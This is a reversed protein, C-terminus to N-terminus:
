TQLSELLTKQASPLHGTRDPTVAILATSYRANMTSIETLIEEKTHLATATQDKTPDYAWVNDNRITTYHEAFETNNIAPIAKTSEYECIDGHSRPAHIQENTIVLCDPQLSKILDFRGKFPINAYDIHWAWDDFWMADIKGYNTLLETIRQDIMAMYSVADTTEDTGTILEHYTDRISYELMIKLGAARTKNCFALLLDVQGTNAYWTTEAISRPVQATEHFATSWNCFGDEAVVPIGVYKAGATVATNIWEDLWSDIDTDTPNFLDKDKTADPFSAYSYFTILSIVFSLGFGDNLFSQRLAQREAFKNNIAGFYVSGRQGAAVITEGFESNIESIGDTLVFATYGLTGQLEAFNNNLIAIYQAPTLGETITTM